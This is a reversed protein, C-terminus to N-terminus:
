ASRGRGSILSRLSVPPHADEPTDTLSSPAPRTGLLLDIRSTIEPDYSFEGCVDCLWAPTGPVIILRSRWRVTYTARMKQLTGIHCIECTLPSTM